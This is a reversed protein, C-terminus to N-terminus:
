ALRLAENPESLLEVGSGGFDPYQADAVRISPSGPVQLGNWQHIDYGLLRLFVRLCQIRAERFAEM